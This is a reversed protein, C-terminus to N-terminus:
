YCDVLLARFNLRWLWSFGISVRKFGMIVGALCKHPQVCKTDSCMHRLELVCHRQKINRPCWIVTAQLYRNPSAFLALFKRNRSSQYISRSPGNWEHVIKSAWRMFEGLNESTLSNKMPFLFGSIKPNWFHSPFLFWFFQCFLVM